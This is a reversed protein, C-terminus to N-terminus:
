IVEMILEAMNYKLMAEDIIINTDAENPSSVIQNGYPLCCDLALRMIESNEPVYYKRDAIGCLEPLLEEVVGALRRLEEKTAVDSLNGFRRAAFRLQALAIKKYEIKLDTFLERMSLQDKLWLLGKGIDRINKSINSLSDSRNNVYNILAKPTYSIANSYAMLLPTCIDEYTFIPFKVDNDTFLSKRYIKGWAFLRSKNIASKDKEVSISSSMFRMKVIHSDGSKDDIYNIDCLGVSAKNKIMDSLLVKIFDLEFWDDSDLFTIYEGTAYEIGRNRTQALGINNHYYYKIRKDKAVYNSCIETCGDTSGDNLLIIEVNSTRNL